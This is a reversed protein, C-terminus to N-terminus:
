PQTLSPMYMKKPTELCPKKTYSQSYKFERYILNAEFKCLDVQRQRGLAPILPM